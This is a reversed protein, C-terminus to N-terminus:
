VPDCYVLLAMPMDVALSCEANKLVNNILACSSFCNFPSPRYM